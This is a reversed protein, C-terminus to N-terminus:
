YNDFLHNLIFAYGNLFYCSTSNRIHKIERKCHLKNYTGLFNLKLPNPVYESLPTKSGRVFYEHNDLDYVVNLHVPM